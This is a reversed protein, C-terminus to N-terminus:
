CHPNKQTLWAVGYSRKVHSSNLRTSKRDRSCEPIIWPDCRPITHIMGSHALCEDFEVFLCCFDRNLIRVKITPIQPTFRVNHLPSPRAPNFVSLITEAGM